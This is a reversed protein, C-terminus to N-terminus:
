PVATVIRDALRNSRGSKRHSRSVDQEGPMMDQEPDAAVVVVTEITFTQGPAAAGSGSVASAREVLVDRSMRTGDRGRRFGDFWLVGEDRMERREGRTRKEYHRAIRNMEARTQPTVTCRSYYVEVSGTQDNRAPSGDPIVIRIAAEAKAGRHLRVPPTGDYRFAAKASAKRLHLRLANVTQWTARQWSDDPSESEKQDRRIRRPSSRPLSKLVVLMGPDNMLPGFLGASLLRDAGSERGASLRVFVAHRVDARPLTAAFRLLPLRDDAIVHEAVTRSLDMGRVVAAAQETRDLPIVVRPATPPPTTKEAPRKAPGSGADKRGTRSRLLLGPGRGLVLPQGVTKQQPSQRTEDPEGNSNLLGFTARNVHESLATLVNLSDAAPRGAEVVAILLSEAMLPNLSPRSFLEEIVARANESQNLPTTQMGTLIAELTQWAPDSDNILLSQM